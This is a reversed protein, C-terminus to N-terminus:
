YKMTLEWRILDHDYIFETGNEIFGCKQLVRQSALNEPSTFAAILPPAFLHRTYNVLGQVAETAFGKGWNFHSVSYGVELEREPNFDAHRLVMNGAYKNDSRTEIVFSGMGPHDISYQKMRELRERVPAEDTAVPRIYRMMQPDRNMQMVEGFDSDQYPRIILRETIIM